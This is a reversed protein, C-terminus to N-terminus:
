LNLLIPLVEDDDIDEVVVGVAALLLMVEDIVPLLWRSAGCYGRTQLTM